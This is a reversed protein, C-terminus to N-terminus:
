IDESEWEALQEVGAELFAERRNKLFTLASAVDVNAGLREWVFAPQRESLDVGFDAAIRDRVESSFVAQWTSPLSEADKERPVLRHRACYDIVVRTKPGAEAYDTIRRKTEPNSM